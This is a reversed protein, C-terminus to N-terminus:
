IYLAHHLLIYDALEFCRVCPNKYIDYYFKPKM